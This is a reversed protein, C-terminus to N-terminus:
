VVPAGIGRVAVAVASAAAARIRELDDGRRLSALVAALVAGLLAGVMAAATTEDLRRPYARHLAAAIEDQARLFQKLAAAQLAPTSTALRFRVSGMRGGLDASFADSVLIRDVARLLVETPPEGPGAEAIVDLAVRIRAETGAFLVDEKSPFYSFFTRPSIEVAAAIEAITTGEYGQQEFLRAAADIIAARTRQKKRERLGTEATVGPIM